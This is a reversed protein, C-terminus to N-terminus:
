NQRGATQSPLGSDLKNAAERLDGESVIDYRDFVSRTNHGTLKMAVHESIGQRVYNRVASRRLDHPLRGPYGALRCAKKFAKLLSTIPQPKKPGRRGEAVMRFFVLPTIVGQQKM